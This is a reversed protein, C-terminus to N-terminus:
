LEGKQRKREALIYEALLIDGATTIKINTSFTDVCKVKVGINEVLMNDDTIDTKIESSHNLAEKYIDVSFAQPTQVSRLGSRDVTENINGDGDCRKITDTVRTSASAAGFEYAASAVAEIEERTILCRAADHIMVTESDESIAEFGLRASEARSKGGIVINIPIDLGEAQAAAFDLEDARSVVTVSSISPASAFVELTHRLVSKNNIVLRQKTKDMNMRSGSGAALIVAACKREVFSVTLSM